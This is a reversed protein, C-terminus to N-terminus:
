TSVISRSQGVASCTAFDACCEGPATLSVISGRRARARNEGNRLAPRKMRTGGAARVLFASQAPGRHLRDLNGVVDLVANM